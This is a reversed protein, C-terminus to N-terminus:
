NDKDWEPNDKGWEPDAPETLDVGPAIHIFGKWIGFLPHRPIQSSRHAQDASAEEPQARNTSRRFTLREDEMSVEETRFGANLWAATIVSNKPNNSWWPRHKRASPPLPAGIVHEIEAFTMPVLDRRQDRLFIELPTYKSM